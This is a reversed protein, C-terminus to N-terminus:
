PWKVTSYRQPWNRLLGREGLEPSLSRRDRHNRQRPQIEIRRAPLHRDMWQSQAEWTHVQQDLLQGGVQPGFEGVHFPEAAGVNELHALQNSGAAVDVCPQPYGRLRM